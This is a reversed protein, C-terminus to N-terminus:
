MNLRISIKMDEYENLEAADNPDRALIVIYDFIEHLIYVLSEVHPVLAADECRRTIYKTFTKQDRQCIERFALLRNYLNNKRNKTKKQWFQIPTSFWENAKQLLARDGICLLEGDEYAKVTDCVCHYIYLLGICAEEVIYDSKEDYNNIRILINQVCAFVYIVWAEPNKVDQLLWYDRRPNFARRMEKISARLSRLEDAINKDSAQCNEQVQLLITDDLKIFEARSAFIDGVIYKLNSYMCDELEQQPIYNEACMACVMRIAIVGSAEVIDISEHRAMDIMRDLINPLVVDDIKDYKEMAQRDQDLSSNTQENQNM